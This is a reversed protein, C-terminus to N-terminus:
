VSGVTVDYHFHTYDVSCNYKTFHHLILPEGCVPCIKAQKCAKIFREMKEQEVVIKKAKAYIEEKYVIEAM